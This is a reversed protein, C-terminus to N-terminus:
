PSATGGTGGTSTGSTRTTDTTPAPALSPQPGTTTTTTTQTGTTTTPTTTTPTSQTPTTTATGTATKTTATSTTKSGTDTRTSSVSTSPFFTLSDGGTLSKGFVLEPLTIVALAILFGLGGTILAIRWRRPTMQFRPSGRRAPPPSPTPESPPAPQAEDHLTIEKWEGPGSHDEPPLDHVEADFPAARPRRRARRQQRRVRAAVHDTPRRVGEKVVAIFVPTFAASIVTGGEWFTSTILAALASAGATILLMRPSVDSARKPATGEPAAM